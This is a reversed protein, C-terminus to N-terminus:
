KSNSKKRVITFFLIQMPAFERIINQNTRQFHILYGAFIFELYTTQSTYSHFIYDTTKGNYNHHYIGTYPANQNPTLEVATNENSAKSIWYINSKTKTITCSPNPTFSGAGKREGDDYNGDQNWDIFYNSNHTILGSISQFVCSAIYEQPTFEELIFYPKKYTKKRM